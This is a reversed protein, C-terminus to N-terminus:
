KGGFIAQGLKFGGFIAFPVTVIREITKSTKLRNIQKDKKVGLDEATKLLNETVGLQNELKKIYETNQIDLLEWNKIEAIFSAIQKDKEVGNRELIVIQEKLNLVQTGTDDAPILAFKRKLEAVEASQAEIVVVSEAREERMEAIEGKLVAEYMEMQEKEALLKEKLIEAQAKYANFEGQIEAVAEVRNEKICARINLVIILVIAIGIILLPIKLKEIM